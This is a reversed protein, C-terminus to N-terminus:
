RVLVRRGAIRLRGAVLMQIAQTYLRHEVQHIRAELEAVSDGQAVPVPEQLIIPGHDMKEDVFHVTVGTVKAGYRYARRIADVGKFAPLLAPHINLVKFKFARIFAPSLIRMFGALVVFDVRAKKLAKVLRADYAGRGAFGKPDVYLTPIGARQARTLAFAKKQDSIVLVLNAKIAGKKVNDIIAQLNTGRGSALVALRKM